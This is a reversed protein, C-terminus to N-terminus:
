EGIGMAPFELVIAEILGRLDAEQKQEALSKGKPMYYYSSRPLNM